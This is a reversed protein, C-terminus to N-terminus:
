DHEELDLGGDGKWRIEDLEDQTLTSGVLEIDLVSLGAQELCERARQLLVQASEGHNGEFILTCEVKPM